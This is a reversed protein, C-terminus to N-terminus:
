ESATKIVAVERESLGYLKYVLEDVQRDLADCKNQYFLTDRDSMASGLKKKADIMQGVSRVIKDHMDKSAPDSFNIVPIKLKPLNTVLVQPHLDTRDTRAPCKPCM